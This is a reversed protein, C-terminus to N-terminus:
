THGHVYRWPLGLKRKLIRIEAVAQLTGYLLRLSDTGIHQLSTPSENLAEILDDIQYGMQKLRDHGIWRVYNRTWRKRIPNCLTKSWKEIPVHSITEYHEPGTPDGMRGNLKVATLNAIDFADDPLALFQLLRSLEDEPTAVLTEFNVSLAKDKHKEHCSILSELGNFLDIKYDYLQWSGRGFTDIISAVVSLPNRWLFIFKADPFIEIIQECILHYRPTKDLFYVSAPNKCAALKYLRLTLERIEHAFDDEGNPLLGIFDNIASAAARHGYEAFTSNENRMHLLPLLIWPESATTIASSTALIRQLLTSGSRPLSFIFIPKPSCHM